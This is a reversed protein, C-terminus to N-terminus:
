QKPIINEIENIDNKEFYLELNNVYDILFLLSEIKHQLENRKGKSGSFGKIFALIQDRVELHELIDGFQITIEAFFPQVAAFKM